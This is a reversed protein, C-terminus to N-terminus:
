AGIIAFTTLESSIKKLCLLSVFIRIVNNAYKYTRM